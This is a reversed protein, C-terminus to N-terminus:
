YKLSLNNYLPLIFFIQLTLFFVIFVPKNLFPSVKGLLGSDARLTQFAKKVM